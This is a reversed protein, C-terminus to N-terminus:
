ESESRISGFSAGDQKSPREFTPPIQLSQSTSVQHQYIKRFDRPIHPIRPSLQLTPFCTKPCLSHSRNAKVSYNPNPRINSSEAQDDAWLPFARGGRGAYHHLDPILATFTLAPGNSPSRDSPATLYVQRDSRSQWLEPNPQNIVRADAAIWQRDFSRFGYEISSVQTGTEDAISKRNIESGHLPTPM